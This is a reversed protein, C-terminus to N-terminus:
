TWADMIGSSRGNEVKRSARDMNSRSSSLCAVLSDLGVTSTVVWRDAVPWVAPWGEEVPVPLRPEDLQLAFLFSFLLPLGYLLDPGGGIPPDVQRGPGLGHVPITWTQDM